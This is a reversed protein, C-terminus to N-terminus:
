ISQNAKFRADFKTAVLRNRLWAMPIDSEVQGTTTNLIADVLRGEPHFGVAAYLRQARVNSEPTILKIRLVDPRNNEVEYILADFMQRGIGQRQVIPHVAVTLSGMVHAFRRLGNRYCHLEGVVENDETGAVVIVGDAVRISSEPHAM